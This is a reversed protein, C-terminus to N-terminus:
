SLTHLRKVPRERVKPQRELRLSEQLYRARIREM